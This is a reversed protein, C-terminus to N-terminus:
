FFHTKIFVALAVLAFIGVIFGTLIWDGITPPYRKNVANNMPSLPSNANAPNGPDQWIPISM